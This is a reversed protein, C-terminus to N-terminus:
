TWRVAVDEIPLGTILAIFDRAMVDVESARRAQTTDSINISGDPAEYRDLAPVTIMWWRGDRTVEIDFERQM